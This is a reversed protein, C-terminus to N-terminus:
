WIEKLFKYIYYGIVSGITNLIIDDVDFVGRLTLLQAAEASVILFLVTVFVAKLSRVKQFAAPLLFGLPVFAAINGALNYIWVDFSVNQRNIMYNAITKFPILNFSFETMTHRLNDTYAYFFLRYSIFVIYMALVIFALCNAPKRSTNRIKKSNM